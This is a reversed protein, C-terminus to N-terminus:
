QNARTSTQTMERRTGGEDKNYKGVWKKEGRIRRRPEVEGVSQNVEEAGLDRIAEIIIEM